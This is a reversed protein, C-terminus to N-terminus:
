TGCSESVAEGCMIGMTGFLIVALVATVLALIPNGIALIWSLVALTRGQRRVKPERRSLVSHIVILTASILWLPLTTGIWLGVPLRGDTFKALVDRPGDPDSFVSFFMIVDVLVFVIGLAFSVIVMWLRPDTQRSPQASRVLQWAADPPWGSNVLSQAVYGPPQGAELSTRAFQQSADM